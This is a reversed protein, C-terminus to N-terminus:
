VSAMGIGHRVKCSVFVNLCVFLSARLILVEEDDLDSRGFGGTRHDLPRSESGM